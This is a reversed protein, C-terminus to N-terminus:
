FSILEQCGPVSYSKFGMQTVSIVANSDLTRVSWVCLSSFVEALISKSSTKQSLVTVATM